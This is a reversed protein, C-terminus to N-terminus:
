ARSLPLCVSFFRLPSSSQVFFGLVIYSTVFILLNIMFGNLLSPGGTKKKLRVCYAACQLLWIKATNLPFKPAAISAWFPLGM